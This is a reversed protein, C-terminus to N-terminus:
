KDKEYIEHGVGIIGVRVPASVENGARGQLSEDAVAAVDEVGGSGQDGGGLDHAVIEHFHDEVGLGGVSDSSVVVSNRTSLLLVNGIIIGLIEVNGVGDVLM